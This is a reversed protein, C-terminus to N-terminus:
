AQEDQIIVPGGVKNYIKVETGIVEPSKDYIYRTFIHDMMLSGVLAIGGLGELPVVDVVTTGADEGLDIFSLYEKETLVLVKKEGNIFFHFKIDPLPQGSNQANKILSYIQNMAWDDGKLQSAGSDLVFYKENGSPSPRFTIIDEGVTIDELPMLWLYNYDDSYSTVPLTFESEKVVDDPINETGIHVTGTSKDPETSKKFNFSIEPGPALKGNDVMTKIFHFGYKDLNRGTSIGYGGEWNLEKFQPGEYNTVLYLNATLTGDTSYSGSDYALFLKDSAQNAEMKGWPGFDITVTPSEQIWEFYDDSQPRFRKRHEPDSGEPVNFWMCADTDCQTSTIWCFRAGTDFCIKFIGFTGEGHGIHAQETYWPNAGNNQYPGKQLTMTYEKTAVLTTEKNQNM